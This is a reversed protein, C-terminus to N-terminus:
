RKRGGQKKYLALGHYQVDNIAKNNMMDQARAQMIKDHKARAELYKPCSGHCGPSREQCDKSCANMMTM